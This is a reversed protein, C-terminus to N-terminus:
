LELVQERFYAKILDDPITVGRESPDYTRAWPTGDRHTLSVLQYEEMGFYHEFVKDAAKRVASNEINEFGPEPATISGAGYHKFGHYVSPFVPGYKWAQPSESIREGENVVLNIGYVYYLLKNLKLNTVLRNSRDILHNAISFIETM